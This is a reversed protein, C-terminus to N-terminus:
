TLLEVDFDEVIENALLKSAMERGLALAQEPADVGTIEIDVVKGVRVKRREFSM